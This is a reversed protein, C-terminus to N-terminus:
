EVYNTRRTRLSAHEGHHTGPRVHSRSELCAVPRRITGLNVGGGIIYTKRDWRGVRERHITADLCEHRDAFESVIHNGREKNATM